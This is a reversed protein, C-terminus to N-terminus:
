ESNPTQSQTQTLSSLCSFYFSLLSVSLLLSGASNPILSESANGKEAIQGELCHVRPQHHLVCEVAFDEWCRCLFQQDKHGQKEEELDYTFFFCVVSASKRKQFEFRKEKWIYSMKQITKWGSFIMRELSRTLWLSASTFPSLGSERKLRVRRLVEKRASHLLEPEEANREKEFRYTVSVSLFM